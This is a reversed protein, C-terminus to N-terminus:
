FTFSDFTPNGLGLFLARGQQGIHLIKIMDQTISTPNLDFWDWNFRVNIAVVKM